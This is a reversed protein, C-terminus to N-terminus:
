NSRSATPTMSSSRWRAPCRAARRSGTSAEDLLSLGREADQPARRKWCRTESILAEARALEPYAQGMERVAGAGAEM